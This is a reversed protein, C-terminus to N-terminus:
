EAGASVSSPLQLTRARCVGRACEEFSGRPVVERCSVSTKTSPNRPRARPSVCATRVWRRWCRRWAQPGQGEADATRHRAACHGALPATPELEELLGGERMAGRRDREGVRPLEDDQVIARAARAPGAEYRAGSAPAGTALPSRILASRFERSSYRANRRASPNLSSRAACRNGSKTAWRSRWPVGLMVVTSVSAQALCGGSPSGAQHASLSLSQQSM